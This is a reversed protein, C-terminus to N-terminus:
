DGVLLIIADQAKVWATFKEKNKTDAEVVNWDTSHYSSIQADPFMSGLRKQVTLSIPMAARKYNAFVGIKKGSLNDLRPATLGRLPIPDVEAWPNLVQYQTAPPTQAFLGPSPGEAAMLAALAGLVWLFRLRPM